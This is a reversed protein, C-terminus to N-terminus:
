EIFTLAKGTKNARGTRGIRHIYDDYTEPQDFNIVHTVDDIDIGRSAVDTAVLIDVLDSKFMDIARNRRSQTKDGHICTVKFGRTELNRSLRDVSRKTRGFIITKKVDEQNLIDHLVDIKDKGAAVRVIDQDVNATKNVSEIMISRPNKAITNILSNITQSLTASFFLSQKKQPLFSILFRIDQIFGMDLMRDVEDLVVTDFADLRLERREILDKLRGPTGIVFQPNRRLQQIQRYMNAGGIIATAYVPMRGAFARMEQYIQQALERTPVVILIRKKPDLTVAHILPILFAGTKGTGTHAIGIVDEGKMIPDIAKEQIPTMFEFGRSSINAMLEPHVQLDTFLKKDEQAEEESQPSAKHIYKSFHISAGRRPSNRYRNTNGYSRRTFTRRAM